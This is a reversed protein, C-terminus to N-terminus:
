ALLAEVTRLLTKITTIKDPTLGNSQVPPVAVPSTKPAEKDAPVVQVPPVVTSPEFMSLPCSWGVFGAEKALATVKDALQQSRAGKGLALLAAKKFTNQEGIHPKRPTKNDKKTKIAPQELTATGNTESM